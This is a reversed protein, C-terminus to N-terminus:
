VKVKVVVKVVKTCDQMKICPMHADEPFFVAVEGKRLVICSNENKSEYKTFDIAENYALAVNLDDKHAVEIIEEGDVIFQFDIYKQHSEFFCEEREKSLYVQELVFCNENIEIKECSDITLSFINVSKPSTRDLFQELYEFAKHFREENMQKKVVDLKGFLAM